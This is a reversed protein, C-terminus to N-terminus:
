TNAYKCDLALVPLRFVSGFRFRFVIRSFGFRVSFRYKFGRTVTTHFHTTYQKFILDKLSFHGLIIISKGWLTVKSQMLHM